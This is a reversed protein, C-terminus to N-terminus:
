PPNHLSAVLVDVEAALWAALSAEDVVGSPAIALTWLEVHEASAGPELCTLPGLTEMELYAGATFVESHCGLDPYTVADIWRAWKIFVVDDYLVASWGARNALGIKQASAIGGDPVLQILHRGLRWRPDTFDTYAWQVLVREPLFQEAHTRPAPQPLIATGSPDVVTLAWPAVLVPWHTRNTICHRVDVTAQGPRLQLHMQKEMGSADAPAHISLADVRPRTMVVPRDDPAYSGPMREPAVWLRHGGVPRWRGLSTDTFSAPAEGLVNRGHVHAYHLVRPGCWTPAGLEVSGNSLWVMEHM